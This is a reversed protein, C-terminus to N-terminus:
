LENQHNVELLIIDKYHKNNNQKVIKHEKLLM